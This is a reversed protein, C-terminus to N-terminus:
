PSLPASVAPPPCLHLSWPGWGLGPPFARGCQSLSSAWGVQGKTGRIEEVLRQAEAQILEEGERKGMGLDRLALM